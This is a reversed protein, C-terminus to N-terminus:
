SGSNLLKRLEVNNAPALDWPTKGNLDRARRDAGWKLLLRVVAANGKVAAMHLPTSGLVNAVNRQSGRQLLDQIIGIPADAEIAVMLPTWRASDQHNVDAGARLLDGVDGSEGDLLASALPAFTRLYTGGGPLPQRPHDRRELELNAGHLILLATTRRNKFEMSWALPTVGVRSQVNPDAGNALLLQLVEFSGASAAYHVSTRNDGDVSNLLTPDAQLAAKAQAMNNTFAAHHLPNNTIPSPTQRRRTSWTLAVDPRDKLFQDAGAATVQTEGMNLRKLEMFKALDPLVRDSVPTRSLDLSELHALRGLRALELEEFRSGHLGV